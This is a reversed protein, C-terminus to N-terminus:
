CVASEEAGGGQELKAAQAGPIQVETVRSEQGDILLQRFPNNDPNQAPREAAPQNRLARINKQIELAV